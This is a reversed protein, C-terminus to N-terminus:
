YRDGQTESLQRWNQRRPAGLFAQERSPTPPVTKPVQGRGPSPVRPGPHRSRGTGAPPRLLGRRAQDEPLPLCTDAEM